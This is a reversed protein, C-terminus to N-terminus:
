NWRIRDPDPPPPSSPAAAEKNMLAIAARAGLAGTALRVLTFAHRQMVAANIALLWDLQSVPHEGDPIMASNRLSVRGDEPDLALGGCPIAQNIFNLVQVMAGRRSPPVAVPLTAAVYILSPNANCTVCLSIDIGDPTTVNGLLSNGDDSPFMRLDKRALFEAIPDITSHHRNM